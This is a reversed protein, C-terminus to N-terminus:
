ASPKAATGPRGLQLYAWVFLVATIGDIIVLPQWMAPIGSTLWHGGAVACYAVKLLIGYIILGRNSVPDRAVQVFMWAFVVLLAAPFQVYGVHNPPPVNCLTFAYTPAVLFLLGLLGDYVAILGFLIPVWAPTKM